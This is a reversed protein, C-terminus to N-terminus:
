VIVEICILPVSAYQSLLTPSDNLNENDFFHCSVFSINSFASINSFCPGKNLKEAPRSTIGHRHFRELPWANFGERLRTSHWELPRTRRIHKRHATELGDTHQDHAQCFSGLHSGRNMDDKGVLEM